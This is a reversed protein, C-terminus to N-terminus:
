TTPLKLTLGIYVTYRNVSKGYNLSDIATRNLMYIEFYRTGDGLQAKAITYLTDGSKVTYTNGGTGTIKNFAAIESKMTAGGTTKVDSVKIYSKNIWAEGNPGAACEFKWWSGKKSILQLVQGKNYTGIVKGKNSATERYKVKNKKVKGTQTATAAPTDNPLLPMPIVSILLDKRLTLTLTYSCDGVGFYEYALAEIFVDENISLETVLLTLTTGSSQWEKLMKIITAPPKWDFIYSLNSMHEGPFIGNWSYGTLQNGRPIKVEGVKIVSFSQTSAGTKINIRDPMLPFRFWDASGKPKLYIDM